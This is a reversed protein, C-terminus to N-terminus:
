EQRSGVKYTVNVTTVPKTPDPFLLVTLGNALTYETIGEVSPGQTVGGPMAAIALSWAFTLLVLLAARAHALRISMTQSFSFAANLPRTYLSPRPADYAGSVPAVRCANM